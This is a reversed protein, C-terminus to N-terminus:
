GLSLDQFAGGLVLLNAVNTLLASFCFAGCSEVGVLVGDLVPIFDKYCYCAEWPCCTGLNEPIAAEVPDHM